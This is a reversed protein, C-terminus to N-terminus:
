QNGRMQSAYCWGLEGELNTIVEDYGERRQECDPYKCRRCDQLVGPEVAKEEEQDKELKEALRKGAGM